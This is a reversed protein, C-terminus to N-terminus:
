LEIEMDLLFDNLEKFDRFSMDMQLSTPSFSLYITGNSSQYIKMDSSCYHYLAASDLIFKLDFVDLLEAPILRYGDYIIKIKRRMIEEM